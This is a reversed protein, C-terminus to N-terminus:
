FAVSKATRQVEVNVSYFFGKGASDDTCFFPTSKELGNKIRAPAIRSV